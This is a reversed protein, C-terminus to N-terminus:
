PHSWVVGKPCFDLPFNTQHGVTHVLSLVPIDNFNMHMYLYAVWYKQCYLTFGWVYPQVKQCCVEFHAPKLFFRVAHVSWRVFTKHKEDSLHESHFCVFKRAVFTQHPSIRDYTCLDMPSLDLTCVRM